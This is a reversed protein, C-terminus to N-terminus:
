AVVAERRILGRAEEEEGEEVAGVRQVEEDEEFIDKRRFVSMQFRKDDEEEEEDEREGMQEEKGGEGVGAGESDGRRVVVRSKNARLVRLVEGMEEDMGQVEKAIRWATKGAVNKAGVVASADLLKEAAKAKGFEVALFFLSQVSIIKPDIQAGAEILAFAIDYFANIQAILLPTQNYEDRLDLDPPPTFALLVQTCTLFNFVAALHVPTRSQMNQANPSLGASLLTQVMQPENALVAAHLATNDTDPDLHFLSAPRNKAANKLMDIDKFKNLSWIPLSDINPYDALLAQTLEDNAPKDELLLMVKAERNTWAVDWPSRSRHDKITRDAGAALLRATVEAEGPRSAEHLPTKGNIDGADNDLGKDILLKVIDARGYVAAGHLLTRGYNDRITDDVSDHDLMIEVIATNGQDIARLLATGGDQDKISPNAGAELLRNVIAYHDKKAAHILASNGTRDTANLDIAAHQLLYLISMVSGAKAGIILATCGDLDKKNVEVRTDELLQQVIAFYDDKVAFM